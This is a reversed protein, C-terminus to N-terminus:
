TELPVAHRRFWAALDDETLTGAALTLFTVYIDTLAATVEIGNRDLFTMSVVLATRKNGDTFAHNRAIGYAYSAALTFLDPDESYAFVNHPKALASDLLNEDRIGSAGGHEALQEQHMALVARKSIWVPENV